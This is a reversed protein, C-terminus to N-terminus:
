LAHQSKFLLVGRYPPSWQTQLKFIGLITPKLAQKNIFGGTILRLIDACEM